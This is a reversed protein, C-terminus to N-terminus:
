RTLPRSAFLRVALVNAMSSDRTFHFSVKTPSADTDSRLGGRDAGEEGEEADYGQEGSRSVDDQTLFRGWPHRLSQPFLKLFPLATAVPPPPHIM